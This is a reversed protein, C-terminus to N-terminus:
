GCSLCGLVVFGFGVMKDLLHEAELRSSIWGTSLNHVASVPCGSWGLMHFFDRLQERGTRELAFTSSFVAGDM